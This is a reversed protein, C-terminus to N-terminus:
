GRASNEVPSSTSRHGLGARSRHSLWPMNGRQQCIRPDNRNSTYRGSPRFNSSIWSQGKSSLSQAGSNTEARSKRNANDFARRIASSPLWRPSSSCAFPHNRSSASLSSRCHVSSHRRNRSPRASYSVSVSSLLLRRCVRANRCHVFDELVLWQICIELVTTEHKGNAALTMHNTPEKACIPGDFPPATQLRAGGGAAAKDHLGTSGAAGGGRIRRLVDRTM